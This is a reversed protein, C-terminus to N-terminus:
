AALFQIEEFSYLIAQVNISEKGQNREKFSRVLLNVVEREMEDLARYRALNIKQQLTLASHCNSEKTDM